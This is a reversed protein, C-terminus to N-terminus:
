DRYVLLFDILWSSPIVGAGQISGFAFHFEKDQWKYEFRKKKMNDDNVLCVYGLVRSGLNFASNVDEFPLYIKDVFDSMLVVDDLM